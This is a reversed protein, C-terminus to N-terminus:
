QVVFQYFFYFIKIAIVSFPLFIQKKINQYIKLLSDTYVIDLLLKFINYKEDQEKLIINLDLISIDTGIVKKRLKENWISLDYEGKLRTKAVESPNSTGFNDTMSFQNEM